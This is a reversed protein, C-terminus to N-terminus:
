GGGGGMSRKREQLWILGFPTIAKIIEGRDYALLLHYPVFARAIKKATIYM